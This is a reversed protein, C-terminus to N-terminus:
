CKSIPFSMQFNSVVNPFQFRCKSNSVVNPIPFLMQFQFRRKSNSVVNAFKFGTSKLIQRVQRARNLDQVNKLGLENAAIKMLEEFIRESKQASCICTLTMNDIVPPDWRDDEQDDRVLQELM